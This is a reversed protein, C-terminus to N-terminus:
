EAMISVWANKYDFLRVFKEDRAINKIGSISKDLLQFPYPKKYKRKIRMSKDTQYLEIGKEVKKRLRKERNQKNVCDRCVCGYYNNKRCPFKDLTLTEGCAKCIKTKKIDNDNYM